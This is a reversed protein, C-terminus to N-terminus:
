RWRGDPVDADASRRRQAQNLDHAERQKKGVRQTAANRESLERQEEQWVKDGRHPVHQPPESNAM